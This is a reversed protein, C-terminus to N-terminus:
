QREARERAATVERTVLAQLFSIRSNVEEELTSVITFEGEHFMALYFEVDKPLNEDLAKAIARVGDEVSKM